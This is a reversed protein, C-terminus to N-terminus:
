ASLWIHDNPAPQWGKNFPGGLTFHAIGPNDPKPTVNVLWNWEEPLEGIEKSALWYFQHLDLGRRTNVDHLSLRDNSPHACNWLIVSSWNKCVYSTQRRDVMKVSDEELTLGHKVVQVAKSPDALSILEHVDRMFIVDCDTFLAWGSQCIIPVLFRTISFDTSCYANSLLDYSGGSSELARRDMTRSFLGRARLRHQILLEPRLGSTKYLTRCAKDVAQEETPDYGIYVKIEM